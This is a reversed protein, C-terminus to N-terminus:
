KNEFGLKVSNLFTWGYWFMKPGLRSVFTLFPSFSLLLFFNSFIHKATTIQGAHVNGTEKMHFLMAPKLVNITWIIALVVVIRTWIEVIWHVTVTVRHYTFTQLNKGNRVREWKWLVVGWWWVIIEPHKGWDLCREKKWCLGRKVQPGHCAPIMVTGDGGLQTYICPDHHKPIVVDGELFISCPELHLSSPLDSRWHFGSFLKADRLIIGKGTYCTIICEPANWATTHVYWVECVHCRWQANLLRQVGRSATPWSLRSSDCMHRPRQPQQRVHMGEGWVGDWGLTEWGFGPGRWGTWPDLCSSIMQCQVCAAKESNKILHTDVFIHYIKGPVHSSWCRTRGPPWATVSTAIQSHGNWLHTRISHRPVILCATKNEFELTCHMTREQLWPSRPPPPREEFSWATFSEASQMTVLTDKGKWSLLFWKGNRRFHPRSEPGQRRFPRKCRRLFEIAQFITCRFFLKMTKM